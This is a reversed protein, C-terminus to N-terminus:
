MPRRAAGEGVIFRRTQPFVNPGAAGVYGM